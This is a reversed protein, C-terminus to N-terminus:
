TIKLWCSIHQESELVSVTSIFTEWESKESAFRKEKRKIPPSGSGRGREWLQSVKEGKGKRELVKGRSQSIKIKSWPKPHRKDKMNFRSNLRYNIGTPQSRQSKLSVCISGRRLLRIAVGLGWALLSLILPIDCCHVTTSEWYQRKFIIAVLCSM